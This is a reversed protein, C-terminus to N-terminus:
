TAHLHRPEDGYRGFRGGRSPRLGHLYRQPPARPQRQWQVGAEALNRSFSQSGRPGQEPKGLSLAGPTVPWFQCEENMTQVFSVLCEDESWWSWATFCNAAEAAHDPPVTRAEWLVPRM